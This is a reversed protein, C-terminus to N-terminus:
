HVNDADNSVEGVHQNAEKFIWEKRYDEWRSWRRDRSPYFILVCHSQDLVEVQTFRRGWLNMHKQVLRWGGGALNYAISFEPYMGPENRVRQAM